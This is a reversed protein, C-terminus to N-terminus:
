GALLRYVQLRGVKPLAEVEGASILGAIVDAARRQNRFLKVLQSATAQMPAEANERMFRIARQADGEERSDAVHDRTVRVADAVLHAALAYGWEVSAADIHPNVADRSIAHILALRRVHEAFRAWFAGERGKDMKPDSLITDEETDVSRLMEAAEATEAVTRLGPDVAQYAADIGGPVPLNGVEGLGAMSRLPLTLREPVDQLAVPQSAPYDVAPRVILFRALSGDGLNGSGLAKMMVLPATVGFFGIHPNVIKVKPFQKADAFSTGDWVGNAKSYLETFLPLIEMKHTGANRSGNVAFLQGVEDLAYLVVPYEKLASTISASSAIRSPGKYHAMGAKEFVESLLARPREKGGGSLALVLFCTNTRLGTTTQYRRGAAAGVASIAAALAIAPQPRRATAIAFNVFARLYGNLGDWVAHPLGDVTNAAAEARAADARQEYFAQWARLVLGAAPNSEGTPLADLKPIERPQSLGKGLGSAITARTEQPALGADLAAATLESEVARQDLAGAAVLGGLKVAAVNLRDNRSGPPAVRVAQCEDALAADGYGAAPQAAAPKRWPMSPAPKSRIAELLWQPLEIPECAQLVEYGPSPPLIVYGGTGRVDVGVPLAGRANGIDTGDPMTFVLHMGGSQTTHARTAPLECEHEDYWGVGNKGDGVDVDIVIRGSPAGTCGGILSVDPRSFAARVTAPDTSAEAKWHRVMPRKEANCPFVPWGEAALELAASVLDTM